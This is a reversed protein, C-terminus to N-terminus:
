CSTSYLALLQYVTAKSTKNAKLNFVHESAIEFYEDDGTESWLLVLITFKDEDSLEDALKYSVAFQQNEAAYRAVRWLMEKNVGQTFSRASKEAESLMEAGLEVVMYHWLSGFNDFKLMRAKALLDPRQLIIGFSHLCNPTLYENNQLEIQSIYDDIAKNAEYKSLLMMVPRCLVIDSSIRRIIEKSYELLDAEILNLAINSLASDRTIAFLPELLHLADVIRGEKALSLAIDERTQASQSQNTILPLLEAAERFKGVHTLYAAIHQYAISKYDEDIIESAIKIASEISEYTAISRVIDALARYRTEDHTISNAIQLAESVRSLSALQDAVINQSWMLEIDDDITLLVDKTFTAVCNASPALECGALILDLHQLRIEKQVRDISLPGVSNGIVLSVALDSSAYSNVIEELSVLIENLKEIKEQVSKIDNNQISEIHRWKQVANVFLYNADAEASARIGSLSVFILALLIKSFEDLYAKVNLMDTVNQFIM